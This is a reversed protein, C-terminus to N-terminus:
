GTVNPATGGGDHKAPLYRMLSRCATPLARPAGNSAAVSVAATFPRLAWSGSVKALNGLGSTSYSLQDGTLTGLLRSATGTGGRFTFTSQGIRTDFALCELTGDTGRLLLHGSGIAGMSSRTLPEQVLSAWRAAYTGALLHALAAPRDGASSTPMAFAGDVVSGRIEVSSSSSRGEVPIGGLRLRLQGKGTYDTTRATTRRAAVSTYVQRFTLARTDATPNACSAGGYRQIFVVTVLHPGAALATTTTTGTSLAPGSRIPLNVTTEYVGDADADVCGYGGMSMPTELSLTLTGGVAPTATDLSFDSRYNDDYNQNPLPHITTTATSTEGAANTVKVGVTQDRNATAAADLVAVPVIAVGTPLTGAPDPTASADGYTGDGDLDWSYTLAGAAPDTSTRGDVEYWLTRADSFAGGAVWVPAARSVIRATPATATAAPTLLQVEFQGSRAAAYQDGERDTCGKDYLKVGIFLGMLPNGSTDIKKLQKCEPSSKDFGWASRVLISVGLKGGPVIGSWGSPEAFTLTTTGLGSDCNDAFVHSGFSVEQTGAVEVWPDTANPGRLLPHIVAGAGCPFGGNPANDLLTGKLDISIARGTVTTEGSNYGSWRITTSAGPTVTLVPLLNSAPPTQPGEKTNGVIKGGMGIYVRRNCGTTVVSALAICVILLGLALHRPLKPVPPVRPFM